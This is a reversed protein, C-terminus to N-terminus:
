SAAASSAPVCAHPAKLAHPEGKACPKVHDGLSFMVPITAWGGVPKGQEMGPHFKWGEAATVAAAQLEASTATTRARDVDVRAVSGDADVRIRLMVTGQEGNRIADAPYRPPNRNKYSVDVSPPASSAGRIAAAVPLRGGALYLGGALLAAVAVSGARRRLTGPPIRTIMAIREKLQPEALWPILAPEPQGAVSDLLARAYGAAHALPSRLAAADCALEQDLRFRPRAFWALPHFWLVACAIEMVLNAWADGRRLHALEHRLVLERTACNGFRQAFDAPLLVLSRPLAALVAPGAQHVRVRRPDVGPAARRVVRMLAMPARQVAHLVRTYRSALALLAIMTGTAWAAVLWPAWAIGAARVLAHGGVPTAGVLIEPLAWTSPPVMGQPLLPALMLVLPLLWLGFAPSAGFARRAPRRLLLVWALGATAGVLMGSLLDAM